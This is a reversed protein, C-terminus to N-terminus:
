QYINQPSQSTLDQAVATRYLRLRTHHPDTVQSQLSPGPPPCLDLYLHTALPGLLRQLEQRHGMHHLPGMPQAQGTPAEMDLPRLPQREPHAIPQLELHATAQLELHAMLGLMLQTAQQPASEPLHRQLAEMRMLSHWSVARLLPRSLILRQQGEMCTARPAV